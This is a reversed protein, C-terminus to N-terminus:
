TQWVASLKLSVQGESVIKSGVGLLRFFVAIQLPCKGQFELVITRGINVTFAFKYGPHGVPRHRGSCSDLSKSNRTIQCRRYSGVLWSRLV